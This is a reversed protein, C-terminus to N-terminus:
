FSSAYLHLVNLLSLCNGVLPVNALSVAKIDDNLLYLISFNFSITGLHVSGVRCYDKGKQLRVYTSYRAKRVSNITTLSFQQLCSKFSFHLLYQFFNLYPDIKNVCVHM